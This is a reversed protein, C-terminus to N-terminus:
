PFGGATRVKLGGPTRSEASVNKEVGNKHPHYFVLTAAVGGALVGELGDRIRGPAGYIKWVTGTFEVRDEVPNVPLQAGLVAKAVVRVGPGRVAGVAIKFDAYFTFAFDSAAFGVVGASM